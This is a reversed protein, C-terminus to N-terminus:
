PAQDLAAAIAAAHARLQPDDTGLALARDMAARAEGDRHARHLAWALLDYGYVDRRTRLEARVRDLVEPVRRDHDLLFLSWARHWQGPQGAVAVEMAHAYQAAAGSDGLAQYADSILGFTAPDPVAAIADEGYAIARRWRGRAAELRALAALLRYDGPRVALGARLAWGADELRGHRLALDGVRFHFWALQEAPLDARGRADTLAQELLRRALDTRGTLEAWRALRTAVALDHRAPWVSDFLARAEGYRGLELDIEALGAQHRPVGPERAALARAAARAEVFRHQALLAATLTGYTNANHAVRLALSRRALREARQYDGFDGTERGRQLYLAALRARDTAGIPDAAVRREFFVIDADRHAAAPVGGDAAAAGPAAGSRVLATVLTVVQWPSAKM